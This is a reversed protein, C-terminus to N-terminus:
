PEVTFTTSTTRGQFSVQFTWTGYAAADELRWTWYWYSQTYGAPSVHTWSQWVSGDPRLVRYASAAAAPQDRYYTTFYVTDGRRFRTAELLNEPAALIGASCSAPIWRGSGTVLRVVAPDRYAPQSAWWTRDSLSNCDGEFPDVLAGTEDHVEFHLHPVSSSGASGVYGLFDGARVRTGAPLTTVTSRKLHGYWAVSGDDHRVYAANWSGNNFACNQDFNGDRTELITGPAAAVVEIAENAMLNWPEPWLVIDVGRHNYGTSLDYTRSGCAYDLLSGPYSPDQDVYNTITYYSPAGYWPSPRLPWTFQVSAPSQARLRGGALADLRSQIAHATADDMADLPGQLVPGGGWEPEAAQVPVRASAIVFVLLAPFPRPSRTM